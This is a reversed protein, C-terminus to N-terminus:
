FVDFEAGMMFLVQSLVRGTPLDDGWFHASARVDGCVQTGGSDRGGDGFSFCRGLEVSAGLLTYPEFMYDAAAAFRAQGRRSHARVGLGAGVGLRHVTELVMGGIIGLRPREMLPSEVLASVTLPSPKATITGPGGGLSVGQGTRISVCVDVCQEARASAPTMGLWGGIWLSTFVSFLRRVVMRLDNLCGKHRETARISDIGQM